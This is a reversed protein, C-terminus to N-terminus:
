EPQAEKLDIGLNAANQQVAINVYADYDKLGLADLSALFEDFMQNFTEDDKATIIKGLNAQVYTNAENKIFAYDSGAEVYGSPLEVVSSDYKFVKDSSGLATMLDTTNALDVYEVSRSFSTHHFAYFGFMGSVSDEVKSAGLETRHLMGSEDWEYDVGEIGYMHVLMGERSSMYDIFRAVAEPNQCDKTVFTQLWGRGVTSSVPFVPADGMSSQVPGPTLWEDDHGMNLGSIGGIYIAARGSNCITKMTTSDMTMVSEELYGLQYCQNLFEVAHRYQPAYYESRYNGDEDYPLTGFQYKLPRMNMEELSDSPIILTYVSADASNTLGADKFQQMVALLKEETDIAKVDIGLQNAYEANIFVSFQDSYKMSQYYEVLPEPYGWIASADESVMHSPYSYWGGDRQILAEKVDEPFSTFIHSEPMYTQMFEGLDWVLDSAILEYRLDANTLTILDPLEGSAIMLNLKTDADEAPITVAPTVGTADTIAKFIPQNMDWTQPLASATLFWTIETTEEALVGSTMTLLLTFALFLSLRKRTM